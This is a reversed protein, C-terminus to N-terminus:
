EQLMQRKCFAKFKTVSHQYGANEAKGVTNEARDFLSIMMRAVNLKDEAFAKFKTVDLIEDNPLSNVWERIYWKSVTGFVFFSCAVVSIQSNFSQSICIAYFANHFFTFNIMKLM